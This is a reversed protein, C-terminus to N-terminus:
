ENSTEERHTIIANSETVKDDMSSILSQLKQMKQILSEIDNTEMNKLEPFKETISNDLVNEIVINEDASILTQANNYYSLLAKIMALQKEFETFSDVPDFANQQLFDERIARATMLLLRDENSLSDTGVIRIVEELESERQLIEMGQSRLAPYESDINESVYNEVVDTYLSYSKLWNISPYHRAKALSGDLAWFVKTVSLTSQTVPESLDGGPPSVAGIISVSGERNQSGQTKVRGAREYFEAIRSNLYAPYGEEGPMEELRSSIERLAEAWRSTSDAMLAVDFGHDRFYEAITIGTYISAERAAIPMNSTNAILVTRNMLPEGSKPDKLHSFEHLVETMENGREGCGVYVIIEADSLKAIQQQTVTKGAGFPGPISGAGGKSLPFFTDLVRWGTFLPKDVPIKKNIPRAIRIPWDHSLTIEHDNGENDTIVAIVDKNTKSGESIKKIEGEIKPPVLVKHNVVKNEQVTGLVDGGSVHDGKKATAIFPWKKSPDVPNTQIGRAIFNGSDEYIDNLPRQIGDYFKGLLGPGLKVSLPKGKSVVPESTSLGTTDEYVQIWAKDGRLEIIEGLLKEKGVEALDFLKTGRMKNAVVLPGSIKEIIGSKNM